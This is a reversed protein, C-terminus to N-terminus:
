GVREPRDVGISVDLLAGSSMLGNLIMAKSAALEELVMKEAKDADGNALAEILYQHEQSFEDTRDRLALGFHFLREMEGIIQTLSAVLRDNGTASAIMLHFEREAKLFLSESMRDGPAYGTKCIKDLRRLSGEDVRGAAIRAVASEVIGRLQFLDNVDRLTIPKVFYGRRRVPRMLGMMSLRDLSARTAARKLDFRTVLENETIAEGPPLECRIIAQYIIEFAVDSKRQMDPGKQGFEHLNEPDKQRASM